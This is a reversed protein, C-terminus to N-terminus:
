VLIIKFLVTFILDIIFLIVFILSIDRPIKKIIKDTYKKLLVLVVSFIGWLSSTELSIYHGLNFEFKKYSWFVKNFLKETLFGGFFEIISLLIFEIIFLLIYRIFKNNYKESLKKYTVLIIVVGIGYIPTWPCFLIGSKGCIFIEFIHGIISYIFFYNIYYM